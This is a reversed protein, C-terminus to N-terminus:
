SLVLFERQFTDLYKSSLPLLCGDQLFVARGTIDIKKVYDVNVLFSRHILRFQDPLLSQLISLSKRCVFRGGNTHLECYKGEVKIYQIEAPHLRHLQGRHKMFLMQRPHVQKLLM